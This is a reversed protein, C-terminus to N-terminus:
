ARGVAREYILALEFALSDLGFDAEVTLAPEGAIRELAEAFGQAAVAPWGPQVLEFRAGSVQALAAPGGRDFAVVPVGLSQAEAAVFSAGEKLSPVVVARAGAVERWLRERTLWGSFTVRGNLDGRQALRELRPRDPGDGAIVLRWAPMTRVAEIAISVGKFRNLRGAYLAVHHGNANISPRPAPSHEVVANSRVLAKRRHRRPLARVSEENNALIVAARSWGIRVLPNVRSLTRLASLLLETATGRIGLAPYLVRPVRQGGAIPGLVFPARVVCALAPLWMNAFTVHHVVDFGYARDLRRAARAAVLQWLVYYVRTGVSGRKWFRLWQPADIYVVHLRPVPAAALAPEIRSRNNARTLVWVDHSRAAAHSWIWGCGPESGREPECAYASVLVKM